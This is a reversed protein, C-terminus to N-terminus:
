HYLDTINLTKLLHVYDVVGSELIMRLQDSRWYDCFNRARM